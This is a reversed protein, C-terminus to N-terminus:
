GGFRARLREAVRPLDERAKVPEFRTTAADDRPVAVFVVPLLPRGDDGALGTAEATVQELQVATRGEVQKRVARWPLPVPRDLLPALVFAINNTSIFEHAAPDVKEVLMLRGGARVPAAGADPTRGPVRRATVEVTMARGLWVHLGLVAPDLTAALNDVNTFYVHRVGRRRLEDGTGSDRLARFFDGHGSPALSPAGDDGLFLEGDLALRPLMRQQFLLVEDGAGRRALHERIADHTLASTMVAVPVPRAGGARRADELKLDLFTRDGLVPVLGKVAGGFRTAAGGAVVISAIEGAALAAAGAAACQAHEPSGPPPLPVVDGPEPPALQAPPPGDSLEGARWRRVLTELEPDELDRGAPTNRADPDPSVCPLTRWGRRAPFASSRSVAHAQDHTPCRDTAQYRGGREM